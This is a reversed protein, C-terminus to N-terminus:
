KRSQAGALSQAVDPPLTVTSLYYAGETFHTLVLSTATIERIQRSHSKATTGIDVRLPRPLPNGNLTLVIEAESPFADDLKLEATIWKDPDIFDPDELDPPQMVTTRDAANIRYQRTTTGGASTAEYTFVPELKNNSTPKLSCFPHTPSSSDWVADAEPGIPVDKSVNIWGASTLRHVHFTKQSDQFEVVTLSEPDDDATTPCLTFDLNDRFAWQPSDIRKPKTPNPFLELLLNENTSYDLVRVLTRSQSSISASWDTFRKPVYDYQNRLWVSTKPKREGVLLRSDSFAFLQASGRTTLGYMAQATFTHALRTPDQTDVVLSDSRARSSNTAATEVTATLFTTDIAKLYGFNALVSNPPGFPGVLTHLPGGKETFALYNGNKQTVITGGFARHLSLWTRSVGLGSRDQVQAWKKGSANASILEPAGTTYQRAVAILAQGDWLSHDVKFASFRDGINVSSVYLWRLGDLRYTDIEEQERDSVIALTDTDTIVVDLSDIDTEPIGGILQSGAPAFLTTVITNVKRVANWPATVVMWGLPSKALSRFELELNKTKAALTWQEGTLSTHLESQENATLLVAVEGQLTVQVRIDPDEPGFTIAQPAILSPPVTQEPQGVTKPLGPAPVPPLQGLQVTAFLSVPKDIPQNPKPQLGFLIAKNASVRLEFPEFEGLELDTRSWSLDNPGSKRLAEETSLAPNGSVARWISWRAQKPTADEVLLILQKDHSTVDIIATGTDQTFVKQTLAQLAPERPITTTTTSQRTSPPPQTTATQQPNKKDGNENRMNSCSTAVVSLVAVLAAVAPIRTFM